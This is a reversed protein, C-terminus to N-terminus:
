KNGIIESLPVSKKRFTGVDRAGFDGQIPSGGKCCEVFAEIRIPTFVGWNIKRRIYQDPQLEVFLDGQRDLKSKTRREDEHIIPKNPEFSDLKWLVGDGFDLYVDATAKNWKHLLKSKGHWEVTFALPDYRIPESSRGMNFYSRDLTEEHGDVGRRDGNVIWVTKKYFRERSRMEEPHLPSNQVEIVLGHPTRVDAIHKEGTIRRNDSGCPRNGALGSPVSGEMVSAM